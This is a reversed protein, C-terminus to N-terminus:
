YDRQTPSGLLLSAYLCKIASDIPMRQLRPVKFYFGLTYQWAACYDPFGVLTEIAEANGALAQKVLESCHSSPAKIYLEAVNNACANCLGMALLKNEVDDERLDSASVKTRDVEVPYFVENPDSYDANTVGITCNTLHLAELQEGDVTVYRPYCFGGHSCFTGMGTQKNEDYQTIASLVDGRQLISDPNEVAAVTRLVEAECLDASLVANLPALSLLLILIKQM